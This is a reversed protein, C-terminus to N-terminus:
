PSNVLVVQLTPIHSHHYNIPIELIPYHKHCRTRYLLIKPDHSVQLIPSSLKQFSKINIHM